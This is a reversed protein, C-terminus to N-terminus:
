QGYQDHIARVADISKQNKAKDLLTVFEPSPELDEARLFIDCRPYLYRAVLTQTISAKSESSKKENSTAYGASLGVTVGYAGGAAALETSQSSFDSKALSIALSDQCATIEIRSDDNVRFNPIGRLPKSEVPAAIIARQVGEPVDSKQQQLEDFRKRDAETHEFLSKEFDANQAEALKQAAEDIVFTPIQAVPEADVKCRLRFAARPARAIQGTRRDIKWGYFVACNRLIIGWQEETLTGATIVNKEGANMQSANNVNNYPDVYNNGAANAKDAAILSIPTAVTPNAAVNPLNTTDSGTPGSFGFGSGAGSGSDGTAGLPGSGPMIRNSAPGTANSFDMGATAVRAPSRYYIALKPVRAKIQKVPAEKELEVEGDKNSAKGVTGDHQETDGPKAKNPKEADGLAKEVQEKAAADAGPKPEEKPESTATKQAHKNEGLPEVEDHEDLAIYEDLSITEDTVATGDSTCFRHIRSFSSMGSKHILAQM